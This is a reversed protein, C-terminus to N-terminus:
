RDVAIDRLGRRVMVRIVNPKQQLGSIRFRLVVPTACATAGANSVTRETYTLIMTDGKDEVLASGDEIATGSAEAALVDVSLAGPESWEVLAPKQMPSSGCPWRDVSFALDAAALPAANALVLLGGVLAHRLFGSRM